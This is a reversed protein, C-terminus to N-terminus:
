LIEDTKDRFFKRFIQFRTKGELQTFAGICLVRHTQLKNPSVCHKEKNTYMNVSIISETPM